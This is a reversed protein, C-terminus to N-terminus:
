RQLVEWCKRESLLSGFLQRCKQGHRTEIDRWAQGVGWDWCKGSELRANNMSSRPSDCGVSQSQGWWELSTCCSVVLWCYHFSISWLCRLGSQIQSSHIERPRLHKQSVFFDLGSKVNSGRFFGQGIWIMGPTWFFMWLSSNWRTRRKLKGCKAWKALHQISSETGFFPLPTTM